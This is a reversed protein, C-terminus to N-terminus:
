KKCIGTCSFTCMFSLSSIFFNMKPCCNQILRTRVSPFVYMPCTAQVSSSSFLKVNTKESYREPHAAAQVGWSTLLCSVSVPVCAGMSQQFLRDVVHRCCGAFSPSEAPGPGGKGGFSEGQMILALKTSFPM